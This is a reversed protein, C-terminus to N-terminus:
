FSLADFSEARVSRLIILFAKPIDPDDIQSELKQHKGQCYPKMSGTRVFDNGLVRICHAKYVYGKEKFAESIGQSSKMSRPCSKVKQLFRLMCLQRIFDFKSRTDKKELAIKRHIRFTKGLAEIALSLSEQEANNPMVNQKDELASQQFHSTLTRYGHM